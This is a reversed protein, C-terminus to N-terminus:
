KNGDSLMILSDDVPSQIVVNGHGLIEQNPNSFPEKLGLGIVDYGNSSKGVDPATMLSDGIEHRKSRYKYSGMGELDQSVGRNLEPAPVSAEKASNGVKETTKRQTKPDVKSTGVEKEM